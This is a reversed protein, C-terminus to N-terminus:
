LNTVMNINNQAKGNKHMITLNGCLQGPLIHKKGEVLEGKELLYISPSEENFILIEGEKLNIKHM